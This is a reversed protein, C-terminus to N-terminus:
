DYNEWWDPHSLEEGKKIWEMHGDLFSLNSGGKHHSGLPYTTGYVYILPPQGYTPQEDKPMNYRDGFTVSKPHIKNMHGSTYDWHPVSFLHCSTYNLGFDSRKAINPNSTTTIPESLGPCLMVDNLYYGMTNITEPHYNNPLYGNQVLPAEWKLTSGNFATWENNDMAYSLYASNVQKMNSACLITKANAKANSLAPLLLSALIAIIAIVILLEILTFPEKKGLSLKKQSSFM